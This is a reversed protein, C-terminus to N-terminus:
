FSISFEVDAAGFIEPLTQRRVVFTQDCGGLAAQWQLQDVVFSALVQLIGKVALFVKLTSITM